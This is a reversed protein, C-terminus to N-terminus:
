GVETLFFRGTSVRCVLGSITLSVMLKPYAKVRRKRLAKQYGDVFCVTISPKHFAILQDGTGLSIEM